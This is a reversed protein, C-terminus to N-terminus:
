QPYIVNNSHTKADQQLWRRLRYQRVRRLKSDEHGVIEDEGDGHELQEEQREWEVIAQVDLRGQDREAEHRHQGGAAQEAREEDGRYPLISAVQGKYQPDRDEVEDAHAPFAAVSPLISAEQLPSVVRPYQSSSDPGGPTISAAQFPPSPPSAPSPPLVAARSLRARLLQISSSPASSASALLLSLLLLSLLLSSNM